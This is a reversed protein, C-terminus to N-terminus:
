PTEVVGAGLAVVDDGGAVEVASAVEIAGVVGFDVGGDGGCGSDTVV